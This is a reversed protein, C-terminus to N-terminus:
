NNLPAKITPHPQYNVLSFDNPEIEDFLGEDNPFNYESPYNMLYVFPLVLPERQIQEIAQDIHNVYLHTDGLNGRIKEPVMNVMKGLITLLLGYSAINFPIGIFFDASRQNWLLSISRKPLNIADCDEHTSLNPVPKVMDIREQLTLERTYVQFSYHCPPLTMLPLQEPNWANVIMRSNDPDTKLTNILNSIQDIGKKLGTGNWNRWQAGYIPGLDGDTRGSKNYDGDWIKCDYRNLFKIDTRGRLFWILETVISKWHLRKTTLLPFGEKMDHEITEGFLSLKNVGTRSTKM